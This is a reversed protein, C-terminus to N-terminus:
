PRAMGRAGAAALFDRYAIACADPIEASMGHGAGPFAVVTCDRILVRMREYEERAVMPDPDPVGMMIPFDFGPLRDTWDESAMLPVFRAAYEVTLGEASDLFWRIKGPSADGIRDRATQELFGRVGLQGVRELWNGKKPRSPPIGATASYLALTAFRGPHRLAAQGAIMGGASSGMVHARDVELRDLLEFFDACLRDHSLTGLDGPESRGHGRTDPRVVRYHRALHPVWGFLRQSSGMGPHLLLVTPARTWPDTFDDVRYFLRTGDSATWHHEATM